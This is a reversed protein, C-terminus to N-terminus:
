KAHEAKPNDLIEKTIGIEVLFKRFTEQGTYELEYGPFEFPEHKNPFRDHFWRRWAQMASCYANAKASEHKIEDLLNKILNRIPEAVEEDQLFALRLKHINTNMCSAAYGKRVEQEIEEWIPSEWAMAEILEQKEANGMEAFLDNINIKLDHGDITARM